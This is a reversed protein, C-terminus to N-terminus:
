LCLKVPAGAQESMCRELAPLLHSGDRTNVWVDGEPKFHFGGSRAAIWIERAATHRNIIIKGGGAFEVEIVGGPKLEYDFDADSEALAAEIRALMADALQNFRSEDM